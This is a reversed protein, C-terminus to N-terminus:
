IEPAAAYSINMTIITLLMCVVISHKKYEEGLFPQMANPFIYMRRKLQAFHGDACM